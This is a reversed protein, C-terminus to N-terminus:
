REPLPAPRKGQMRPRDTGLDHVHALEVALGADKSIVGAESGGSAALGLDGVDVAIFAHQKVAAIGDFLQGLMPVKELGAVQQKVALQRGSALLGFEVMVHDMVRHHVLLHAPEELAEPAIRM